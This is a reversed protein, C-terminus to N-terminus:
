NTQRDRLYKKSYMIIFLGITIEVQYHAAFFDCIPKTELLLQYSDKNHGLIHPIADGKQIIIIYGGADNTEDFMM